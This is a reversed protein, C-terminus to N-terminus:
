GATNIKLFYSKIMGIHMQRVAYTELNYFDQCKNRQKKHNIHTHKYTKASYNYKIKSICFSIKKTIAIQNRLSMMIQLFKM